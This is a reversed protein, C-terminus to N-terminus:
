MTVFTENKSQSSAKVGSEVGNAVDPGMSRGANM